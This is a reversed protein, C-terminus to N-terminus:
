SKLTQTTLSEKEKGREEIYYEALEVRSSNIPGVRWTLSIGIEQFKKGSIKSGSLRYHPAYGITHSM